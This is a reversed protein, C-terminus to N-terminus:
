ERPVIQSVQGVVVVGNRAVLETLGPTLWPDIEGRDPSFFVFIARGSEVATTTRESWQDFDSRPELTIPDFTEPVLYGGRNYIIYLAELNNTYIVTQAPIARVEELGGEQQLM